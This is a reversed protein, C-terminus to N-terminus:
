SKIESLNDAGNLIAQHIDMNINGGSLVVVTPGTLALKDALIAAIGVSAGGEIIQREHLYAHRIAAAIEAESVVATQDVLKRVINFTYHNDPHIGGALSDAFTPEENVEVIAGAKISDIMAPGKEMSIGYLKIKPKLSKIAIAIGSILGGGSLPVVVNELDPIQEIIELGLTGQGCIIQKHDFPPLYTAQTQDIYNLAALEAEDANNGTIVVEAGLDRIGNVKNEPVFPSMFVKAAIGLQNAAFAVGRGHNGSSVCVIGASKQEDTLQLMANSAGRIKFSNTIQQHELKLYVPINALRSLESSQNVATKRIYGPLRQQASIIDQIEISDPM